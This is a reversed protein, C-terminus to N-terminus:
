VNCNIHTVRVLTAVSFMCGGVGWPTVMWLCVYLDSMCVQLSSCVATNKNKEQQISLSVSVYVTRPLLPPQSHLITCALFGAMRRPVYLHYFLYSHPHTSGRHALHSSHSRLSLHPLPDPFLSCVCEAPLFSFFLLSLSFLSFSFLLACVLQSM